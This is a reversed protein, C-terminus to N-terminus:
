RFVTFSRFPGFFGNLDILVPGGIVFRSFGALRM